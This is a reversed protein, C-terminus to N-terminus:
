DRESSIINIDAHFSQAEAGEVRLANSEEGAMEVRVVSCFMTCYNRTKCFSPPNHCIIRTLNWRNDTTFCQFLMNMDMINAYIILFLM